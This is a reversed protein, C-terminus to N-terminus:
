FLELVPNGECIFRLQGQIDYLQSRPDVGFVHFLTATLDSIHVPRERPYGAVQDSSGVVRGGRVGGGALVVSYCNCWHDRGGVNNTNNSFNVGMRPTRGFEGMWLVLVDDLLGREHLDELLASFSQDAPPALENTVRAYHSNHTDWSGRDVDTHSFVSVFPVGAEVLRRALLTSQGQIHRGYRDRLRAPERNLDFAEKARASTLLNFASQYHTGMTGLAGSAEVRRQTGDLRELLTQRAALRPRNVDEPLAFSDIRFDPDSPDAGLVFPDYQAGLYGALLGPSKSPGNNTVNPIIVHQPMSPAHPRLRGVVSAFHPHDTRQAATRNSVAMPDTAERGVLSCYIAPNHCRITHHVSRVIAFKDAHQALRPLADTMRIGPVRTAIPRFPGRVEEIADPKPDFTDAQYPGGLQFLLICARASTRRRGEGQPLPTPPSPARAVSEAALVDMLAPTWLSVCGFQLFRRREHIFPFM